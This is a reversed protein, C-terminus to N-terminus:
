FIEPPTPTRVDTEFRFIWSERSAARTRNKLRDGPLLAGGRSAVADTRARQCRGDALPPVDVCPHDPLRPGTWGTWNRMVCGTVLELNPGTLWPREETFSNVCEHWTCGLALLDDLHEAAEPLKYLWL